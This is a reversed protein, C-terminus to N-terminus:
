LTVILTDAEIVDKSEPDQAAQRLKASFLFRFLRSLACLVRFLLEHLKLIPTQLPAAKLRTELGSPM